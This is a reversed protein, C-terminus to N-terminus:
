LTAVFYKVDRMSHRVDCKILEGDVDWVNRGYRTNSETQTIYVTGSATTLITQKGKKEETVSAILEKTYKALEKQLSDIQANLADLKKINPKKVDQQSEMAKKLFEFQQM